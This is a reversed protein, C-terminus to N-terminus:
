YSIRGQTTFTNRTTVTSGVVSVTTGTIASRLTGSADAFRGTGGTVIQVATIESAASSTFTGRGTFTSFLQDGNAAVDTETGTFSFTNGTITFSTFQDHSTFKGLHTAQGTGENTGLGTAINITATSSSKASVPRDTGKAKGM